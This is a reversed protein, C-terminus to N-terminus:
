NKIGREIFIDQLDPHNILEEEINQLEDVSMKHIKERTKQWQLHRGNVRVPIKDINLIKAMALRHNGSSGYLIDGKRDIYVNIVEINPHKVSPLLFGNQKLNNFLPTMKKEYRIKLDEITTCGLVKKENQLRVRYNSFLDTDEWPINNVFHQYIADNKTGGFSVTKLDWDGDMIKGFGRKKVQEFEIYKDIAYPSIHIISTNALSSKYKRNYYLDFITNKVKNLWITMFKKRYYKRSKQGM